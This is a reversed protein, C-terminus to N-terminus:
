GDEYRTRERLITACIDNVVGTSFGRRTLLGHIRRVARRPELRRDLRRAALRAAIEREGADRFAGRVVAEVIDEGVGRDLLKRRVLHPGSPRHRMTYRVFGEALRRDDLYGQRRLTRVIDDVIAPNEIGEGALASRIERETRDRRSLKRYSLELGAARALPGSLEELDWGTIATGAELLRKVAPSAAVLFRRERSTRIERLSGGRRRVEV